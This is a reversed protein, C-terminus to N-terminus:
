FVKYMIKMSNSYLRFDSYYDYQNELLDLSQYKDFDKNNIGCVFELGIKEPYIPKTFSDVILYFDLM